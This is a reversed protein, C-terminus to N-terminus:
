HQDHGHHDLQHHGGAVLYLHHNTISRIILADKATNHRFQPSVFNCFYKKHKLINKRNKKKKESKGKKQEVIYIINLQFM